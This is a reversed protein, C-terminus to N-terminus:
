MSLAIVYKLCSRAKKGRWLHPEIEPEIQSIYNNLEQVVHHNIISRSGSDNTPLSSSSLPQDDQHTNTDAGCIGINHM